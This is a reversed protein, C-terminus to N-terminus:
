RLSKRGSAAGLRTSLVSRETRMRQQSLALQDLDHMKAIVSAGPRHAAVRQSLQEASLEEYEDMMVAELCMREAEQEAEPDFSDEMM